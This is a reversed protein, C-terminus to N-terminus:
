NVRHIKNGVGKLEEYGVPEKYDKLERAMFSALTQANERYSEKELKKNEMARYSEARKLVETVYVGYGVNKERVRFNPKNCVEQVARRVEEVQFPPRVLPNATIRRAAALHGSEVFPGQVFVIEIHSLRPNSQIMSAVQLGTYRQERIGMMVVDPQFRAILEVAEVPDELPLFEAMAKLAQHCTELQNPHDIIVLVRPKAAPGRAVKGLAAM